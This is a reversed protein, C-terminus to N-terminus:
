NIKWNRIQYSSDFVFNQVLHYFNQPILDYLFERINTLNTSGSTLFALDLSEVHIFTSLLSDSGFLGFFLEYTSCNLTFLDYYLTKMVNWIMSCKERIFKFPVRSRGEEVGLLDLSLLWFNALSVAWYDLVAVLFLSSYSFDM